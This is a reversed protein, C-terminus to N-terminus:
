SEHRITAKAKGYAVNPVFADSDSSSPTATASSTSATVRIVRWGKLRSSNAGNSTATGSGVIWGTGM